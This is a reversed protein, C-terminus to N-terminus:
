CIFIHEGENTVLHLNFHIIVEWGDTQFFSSTYLCFAPLSTPFSSREDVGPPVRAPAPQGPLLRMASLSGTVRGYHVGRLACVQHM